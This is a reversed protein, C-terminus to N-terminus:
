VPTFNMNLNTFNMTQLQLQSMIAANDWLMQIESIKGCSWRIYTAMLIPSDGTDPFVVPPQDPSVTCNENTCVQIHGVSATWDRSGIPKILPKAWTYSTVSNPLELTKLYEILRDKGFNYIGNSKVFSVSGHIMDSLKHYKRKNVLKYFRRLSELNDDIEKKSHPVKFYTATHPNNSDSTSTPLMDPTPYSVQNPDMVQSLFTQNDWVLLEEFFSGENNWLNITTYRVRFKNGPIAGPIILAGDPGVTGQFYGVTACVNGSAIQLLHFPNNLDPSLVFFFELQSIHLDRGVTQHGDPFTVVVDESHTDGLLQFDRHYSWADVDAADFIRLNRVEEDGLVICDGGVGCGHRCFSRHKDNSHSSSSKGCHSNSRGEHKKNKGEVITPTTQQNSEKCILKTLGQPNKSTSCVFTKSNSGSNKPSFSPKM